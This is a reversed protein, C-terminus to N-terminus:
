AETSLSHYVGSAHKNGALSRSITKNIQLEHSKAEWSESRATTEPTDARRGGPVATVGELNIVKERLPNTREADAWREDLKM